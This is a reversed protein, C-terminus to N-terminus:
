ADPCKLRTHQPHAPPPGWNGEGLLVGLEVLERLRDVVREAITAENNGYRDDSLFDKCDSRDRFKTEDLYVAIVDSTRTWDGTDRAVIAVLQEASIEHFCDALWNPANERFQPSWHWEMFALAADFPCVSRPTWRVIEHASRLLEIAEVARRTESLTRYNPSSCRALHATQVAVLFINTRDMDIQQRIDGIV